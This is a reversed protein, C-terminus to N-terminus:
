WASMTKNNIFSALGLGADALLVKYSGRSGNIANLAFIIYLIGHVPRLNGWWVNGGFAGKVNRSKTAWVIIFMIGIIVAIYGMWKLQQDSAAYAAYALGFRM